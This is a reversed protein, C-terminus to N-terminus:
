CRTNPIHTNCFCIIYAWFYNWEEPLAAPLWQRGHQDVRNQQVNAVNTLTSGAISFSSCLSTAILTATHSCCCCQVICNGPQCGVVYQVGVKECSMGASSETGCSLIFRFSLEVTDRRTNFWFMMLNSSM